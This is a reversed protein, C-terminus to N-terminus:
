GPMVIDDNYDVVGGDRAREALEDGRVTWDEHEELDDPAHEALLLAFHEALGVFASRDCAEGRALEAAVQGAFVRWVTETLRDMPVPAM